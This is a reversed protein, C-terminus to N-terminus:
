PTDPTDIKGADAFCGGRYDEAFWPMHRRDHTRKIFALVQAATKKQLFDRRYALWFPRRFHIGLDLPVLNPEFAAMYTPLIAIGASNRVTEVLSAASNTLYRARVADNLESLRTTWSGWDIMHLANDLLRHARLEQLSGPRGFKEWYTRSAYLTFHFFGLKAAVVESDSPAVDHVALDFHGARRDNPDALSFIRVDLDAHSDIFKTLFRPIWYIALGETTVLKVEERHPASPSARHIAREIAIRATKLEEIVHQAERTLLVGHNTRTVLPTRLSAELRRIRRSMTPQTLGLMKGARCLSGETAVSLLLRLDDWDPLAIARGDIKTHAWVAPPREGSHM